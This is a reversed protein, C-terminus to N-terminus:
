QRIMADLIPAVPKLGIHKELWAARDVLARFDFLEHGTPYWKVEKPESAAAAYRDMSVKDFYREYQAFQFLLPVPAAYPVYRIGDLPAQIDVYKAVDEPPVSARLQVMDPEDSRLAIDALEGVGGMLVCTKMRKDVAVVAAGLQAGFSHGVYAIRGSDIDPRALMLDFGRRIDVAAQILLDRDLESNSFNSMNRRWPAPRVWPADILLSIAGAKAYLRAEAMFETRTGYGWHGFVIGAYRGPSAPEVLYATVRGEKPSIYSIDHIIADATQEIITDKIDLPQSPDYEFLRVLEQPATIDGACATFPFLVALSVCFSTKAM